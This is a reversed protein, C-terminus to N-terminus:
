ASAALVRRGDGFNPSLEAAGREAARREQRQERSSGSRLSSIAEAYKIEADGAVHGAACNFSNSYRRLRSRLLRFPSSWPSAAWLRTRSRTPPKRARETGLLREALPIMPLRWLCSCGAFGVTEVKKVGGLGVM